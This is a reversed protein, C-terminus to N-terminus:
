GWRYSRPECRALLELGGLEPMRLDTIVLHYKQAKLRDWASRGDGATDVELEDSELVKRLHHRNFEMDDIVLIRRRMAARGDKSSDDPEYLGERAINRTAACIFRLDPEAPHANKPGHNRRCPAPRRDGPIPELASPESEDAPKAPRRRPRGSCCPQASPGEGPSAAARGRSGHGRGARSDAAAPQAQPRVKVEIRQGGREILLTLEDGVSTGEVLSFSGWGRLLRGNASVIRDGPRLGAAAAPTGAGVSSIMVSRVPWRDGPGHNGGARGSGWTGGAFRASSPSNRPSGDRGSAPLRSEDREGQRMPGPVAHEDRGGRGELERATRGPRISCATYRDRAMTGARGAAGAAASIFAPRSRLLRAGRRGWPSCGTAPSSPMPTAGPVAGGSAGKMDVVLVAVESRPDRRIQSALRETGDAFVVMVQSSGRLVGESTVVIGRDADIVFGSGIAEAEVEHRRLVGRPIFDGPRFPGGNPIPVNVIPRSVDLPRIGVLSSAVRGAAKRFSASFSDAQGQALVPHCFVALALGAYLGARWPGATRMSRM